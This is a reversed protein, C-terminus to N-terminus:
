SKDGVGVVCGWVCVKIAQELKGKEERASTLGAELDALKGQTEALSTELESCRTRAAALQGEVETLKSASSQMFLDFM